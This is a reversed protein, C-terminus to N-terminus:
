YTIPEFLIENTDINKINYNKDVAFKINDNYKDFVISSLNKINNDYYSDILEKFIPNNPKAVIFKNSIYSGQKTFLLDETIYNNIIELLPKKLKLNINIYIGGNSYLLCYIWLNIKQKTTVKNYIDLLKKDFNTIIFHRVDRDNFLYVEFELSKLINSNITNVFNLNVNTNNDYYQYYTAPIGNFNLNKIPYLQNNEEIRLTREIFFPVTIKHFFPLILIHLLIIGFTFLLMYTTFKTEADININKEM